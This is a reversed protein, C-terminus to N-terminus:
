GHSLIETRYETPTEGVTKKFIRSFYNPDAYGVKACIDKVTLDSDKMLEKARDIRIGTLFELFTEGTEEKFLRTFYYPSVDVSGSVEDLSIDRTYNKLIYQKAEEVVSGNKEERKVTVNRAAECVRGEFWRKLEGYDSIGMVTPLYESRYLFHYTMGGSTYAIRESLLIFELCKLRIDMIADPYTEEMWDFYNDAYTRALGVNGETVAAFMKKELDVPYDSEYECGVPLDEAHAVDAKSVRLASISDRYSDAVAEFLQVTGIGIRVRIDWKDQLERSFSEAKEIIRVREGYTISREKLPFYCIIKNSILPGVVCSFTGKIMARIRTYEPQVRIGSGIPNESGPQDDVFSFVQIYGYEEEIGLLRKYNETTIGEDQFLISYIFGSEILPTVTEIKERISLERSRRERTEDIQKMARGLVDVIMERNFPKNLYDLAGLTMAERAYDFKDYASMIIFVLSSNTRRIEKMAEIGNIGPMQIDMFAIDPRFTEALEIVARGTKAIEIECEGPFSKEIIFRLSDTVIGEDDALMIRYM